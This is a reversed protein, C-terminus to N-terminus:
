LRESQWLALFIIVSIIVMLVAFKQEEDLADAPNDLSRM